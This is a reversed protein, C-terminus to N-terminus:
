RNFSLVEKRLQLLQNPNPQFKLYNAIGYLEIPQVIPIWPYWEDMIENMRRYAKERFATDLSTRAKAGLDDWEPHRWYDQSGGPGLLRYMM